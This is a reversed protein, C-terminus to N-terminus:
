IWGKIKFVIFAGLERLEHYFLFIRDISCRRLYDVSPVPAPSFVGPTNKDAVMQARRMHFSTTVLLASNLHNKQMLKFTNVINEFTNKSEGEILIDDEPVGLSLALKAMLEADPRLGVQMAGGSFIIKPAYGKQYLKIGYIIRELTLFGLNESPYVGGSLVVIAQAKKLKPQVYFFRALWNSFPTFIVIAAGFLFFCIIFILIIM